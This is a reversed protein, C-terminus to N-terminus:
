ARRVICVGASARTIATYLWRARDAGTFEDLVLVHPWESGQAKHTTIAYGLAFTPRKRPQPEDLHQWEFWPKEIWGKPGDELTIGRAPEFARVAFIEGNMIGTSHNELRMVPEGPEPDAVDLLHRHRRARIFQNMRHRTSNRWCLVVDAWDGIRTTAEHRGIVQFATGDSACDRGARVAHAQRIIPSDAAQRRIEHLTVDAQTFFPQEEVPPLQGPDGFAIAEEVGTRFLDAGLRTGVMSAEDVLIVSGELEDPSFREMFGILRGDAGVQPTYLLRHLTAARVGTKRAVVAAAKGTPACITPDRRRRALTAMITTKGTGALGQLCFCQGSGALFEDIAAMAAAQEGDLDPLPPLAQVGAARGGAEQEARAARPSVGLAAISFMEAQQLLEPWPVGAFHTMAPGEDLCGPAAGGGFTAVSAVPEDSKKTRFEHTRARACAYTAYLFLSSGTMQRLKM